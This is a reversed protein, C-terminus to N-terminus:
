EITPDACGRQGCQQALADALAHASLTRQIPDLNLLCRALRPVDGGAASESAAQLLCEAFREPRLSQGNVGMPRALQRAAAVVSPAVVAECLLVGLAYLDAAAAPRAGGVQEPAAYGPTFSRSVRVWYDQEGTAPRAAIGFDVLRAHGDATVLVNAPKLDRHVIGREHLYAVASALQALVSIQACRDSANGCRWEGLPRGQM